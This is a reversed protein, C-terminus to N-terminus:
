TTELTEPTSEPIPAERLIADQEREADVSSWTAKFRHIARADRAPRLQATVDRLDFSARFTRVDGADDGVTVSRLQERLQMRYRRDTARSRLFPGAETSPGVTLLKTLKTLLRSQERSRNTRLEVEIRFTSRQPEPILVAETSDARVISRRSAGPCTSSSVSEVDRLIVQPLKGVESFDQSTDWAVHPRIRLLLLLVHGSLVSGTLTVVRTSPNYASLLDTLRNPDATLDFVGEAAVVELDSDDRYSDLDVSSVASPLPPLATEVRFDLEERLTRTLSDILADEYWDVDGEWLVSVLSVSPTVRDDTTRLNLIVAFERRTKVDWISLHANVQAVTNWQGVTPVVWASGNWWSEVLGNWMRIGVSTDTPLNADVQLLLLRRVAEPRATPTRVSLNADTPYTFSESLKLKGQFDIPDIRVKTVDSISSGLVADFGQGPDWHFDTILRDTSM